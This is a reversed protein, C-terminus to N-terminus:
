INGRRIDVMRQTLEYQLKEGKFFREFEQATFSFYRHLANPAYWAIHPTIFANPFSRLPSDKELPEPDFVDLGAIIERARLKRILAHKDVVAGRSCNILIAGKRLLGLEREGILGKTKPTLPVQVVLIEAHQIVSDLRDRVIGLKKVVEDSLYPDHVKLDVKFPALLEVLRQGVHGCGVLGVRRGSLTGNVFDINQTNAWTEAGEMMQRYLAGANRLCVIVLALDWEAVPEASAINDTDVVKIGRESAAALDIGTGFRDTRVGVVKLDKAGEFVRRTLDPILRGMKILGQFGQLAEILEDESYTEKRSPRLPEVLSELRRWDEERIFEDRVDVLVKPRM